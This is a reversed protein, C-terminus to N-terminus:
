ITFRRAVLAWLSVNLKFTGDAARVMQSTEAKGVTMSGVSVKRQRASVSGLKALEYLGMNNGGINFTSGSTYASWDLTVPRV